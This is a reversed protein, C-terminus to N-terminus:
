TEDQGGQRGTARGQGADPPRAPPDNAVPLAEVGGPAGGGAPDCETCLQDAPQFRGTSGTRALKSKRIGQASIRLLATELGNEELTVTSFRLVVAGCARQRPNPAEVGRSHGSFGFLDKSFSASLTLVRTERFEFSPYDKIM